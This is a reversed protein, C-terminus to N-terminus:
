LLFKFGGYASFGPTGYGKIMEYEEDLINDLRFFIQVNQIIDYSLAANLLTYSPMTIRAATWGTWEMDEREGIHILSLSINGKELFHFNMKATFKDKPRRLLYEGTEKDKAETSTYSAALHLNDTPWAQLIFEAGKSSAKLINIYGEALDFDILNEYRSSFYTAGLILKNQLLNQEIGVDWSSSEETKLDKNGVPGWFTGPAFLQYLSPSKFGTGYTAKFKTGTQDIFYAPAIRYTIAKGAQSHHDLRVGITAFFRDALRIQDQIYVGTNYAKQLPFISSAPGWLSESYFESEGQEEQYEFGFTLTNSKHLFLNHQWDLKWQKSNFESHDSDFPHADDTPNEYKRDYGVFSINLKQEWRNKLFLGRVQGKLILADYDQTNNPDDGYAGGFNDIDIKTKVTRVSFDLDLNDLPSYGLRGSFTLNQYGDEESNGEYSTSAASFGDTRSLSAGLSYHIRDTSGSIEAHSVVTRYSGGQTSLRFGPKGEGKKTIINIVGGLADSGYLTSQPGRLIEIRDINDLYLHALDYSRSPSIPDNLEVGDMMVLTHESNAGRLIVSASSGAPGSQIVTVGLVDQLAELVTTKKTRELDERKLVTISSAIEKTPTEIRTATVVIDYQLSTPTSEEKKPNKQNEESFISLTFISFALVFFFIKRCM